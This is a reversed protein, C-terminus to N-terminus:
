SGRRESAAAFGESLHFGEFIRRPDEGQLQIGSIGRSPCTSPHHPLRHGLRGRGIFVDPRAPQGFFREEWAAVTYSYTVFGTLYLPWLTGIRSKGPFYTCTFPLKDLGMMLIEVLLM